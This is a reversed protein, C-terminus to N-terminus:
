QKVISEDLNMLARATLMWAAREVADPGDAGALKVADLEGSALRARQGSVYALMAQMEDGDFERSLLRRSLDRLRTADDAGAALAARGLAQAVEVFMPDNLLTLAQLASNSVEHRAVCAEGTPGDFTTVMAFPATRKQFTYLSRRYRDEGDSVKWTKDGYAIEAVGEPQPPRVGRGYMKASLLSAAKLMSDRIVEAELRVRPGRALLVNKPDHAALAPSVASDQRYTASTVILRHLQKSSWDLDQMFQTALWDLLAPHSPPESQYGFDEVTAVLGRGFLTHWQRNVVVRATLPSDPSVLWRALALRDPPTGSPLQPLFAPVAGGVEEKPQTYEGRHHRHTKRPNDASREKLVLTRQGGRLSRELDRIEKVAASLEPASLLFQTHIRERQREDRGDTPALLLTEIDAPLGRAEADADDAVSVRFCGIGCVFHRESRLTIEIPKGAPVPSELVFVAAHSQGQGGNVSWGSSMDGDLAKEATNNGAAFSQTARAIRWKAGDVNVELESLMFDGEPGEYSTLGPGGMPLSDDALVELRIASVAREAAPLQLTYADSKTCDGGALISADDRLVLRPKTSTMAAPRVVRWDVARETEERLWRDFREALAVDKRAEIAVADPAPEGSGAAVNQESPQSAAPAPWKAPLGAILRAIRDRTDARQRDLEASPIVWAPEDANNLLAMLAFYDTHTIPDFKHTHCQACATTLGLWVTGTTGVRDVMALYRFELPDTGGEENLMTNRHFGTAILDDTTAEPLLDGAIQRITFEDFPMDANLARIVWDRYPWIQRERDKEYGNTDAYRALDLWKRAWREGYQPSALLREVLKEYADSSADALFADLEAPSPPLGILDLYVRRCLTAKDAEASPALGEQELRALVFRDIDNKPWDAQQVAPPAPREPKVFAWHPRYEAGAAIWEALIRKEDATLTVKTHPPPMVLDSDSSTIRAILESDDPHGPVVARSGSDLERLAEERLDLRLGAERNGEDPGHCKFCRNSLVPRVDRAFDPPAAGATPALTLAVAGFVSAFSHKM